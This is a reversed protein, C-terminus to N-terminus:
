QTRALSVDLEAVTGAACPQKCDFEVLDMTRLISECSVTSASLGYEMVDVTSTAATAGTPPCELADDVTVAHALVRLYRNTCCHVPMDAISAALSQLPGRVSRSNM